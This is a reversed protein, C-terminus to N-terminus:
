QWDGAPGQGELTGDWTGDEAAEVAVAGAAPPPADPELEFPPAPEGTENDPGAKTEGAVEGLESIPPTNASPASLLLTQWDPVLGPESEATPVIRAVPQTEVASVVMEGMGEAVAGSDDLTFDNFYATVPKAPRTVTQDLAVAAEDPEPWPEEMMEATPDVEVHRAQQQAVIAELEDVKQRMFIEFRANQELLYAMTLSTTQRMADKNGGSRLANLLKM